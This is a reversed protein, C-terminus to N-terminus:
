PLRRKRWFPAEPWRAEAEYLAARLRLNATFRAFSATQYRRLAECGAGRWRLALADAAAIGDALAKTIGQATLPDCSWAADGVAVWDSGAVGSLIATTASCRGMTWAGAPGAAAVAPGVLRTTALAAQFGAADALSLGAAQLGDKDTALMAVMRNGPIRAAYWWGYPVAELFIRAAGVESPGLNVVAHCVMLMDAVNRAVVDGAGAFCLAYGGDAGKRIGGLRFPRFIPIGRAAVEDRLAADFAARDLQWGAGAPDFVADNHGVVEKGWLVTTGSRTLPRLATMRDLVGLQRLLPAAAAPLSEGIRFATSPRGADFIAVDPVGSAALALATACGAAGAGLIAVEVRTPPAM